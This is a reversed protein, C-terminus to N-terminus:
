RRSRLPPSPPLGFDIWPLFRSRGTSSRGILRARLRYSSSRWSKPKAIPRPGCSSLNVQGHSGCWQELVPLFVALVVPRAARAAQQSHWVFLRKVFFASYEPDVEPLHKGQTTVWIFRYDNGNGFHEDLVHRNAFYDVAEYDHLQQLESRWLVTPTAIFEEFPEIVLAKKKIQSESDDKHLVAEARDASFLRFLPGRRATRLAVYRNTGRLEVRLM